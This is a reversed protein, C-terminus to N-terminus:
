DLEYESNIIREFRKDDRRTRWTTIRDYGFILAMIAPGSLIWLSLLVIITPM